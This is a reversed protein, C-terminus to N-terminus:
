ETKRPQDRDILKKIRPEIVLTSALNWAVIASVIRGNGSRLTTYDQRFVKPVQLLRGFWSRRKIKVTPLDKAWIPYSDRWLSITHLHHKRLFLRRQVGGIVPKLISYTKCSECAILIKKM